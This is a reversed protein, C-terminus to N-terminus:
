VETGKRERTSQRAIGPQGLLQRRSPGAVRERGETIALLWARFRQLKALKRGDTPVCLYYGQRALYPGDFLTTLQGRDLEDEILFRPVLGVGFGLVASKVILSYQDFRPGVLPNIGTPRHLDFWEKWAHPVLVHQLLNVKALDTITRLACDKRLEPTCVAEIERGIVYDAHADPWVGEGFQIAADFGEARTFDHTHAYQVFDVSIDAHRARFDALRPILFQSAFTPPVSLSIIGGQGRLVILEATARELLGLGLRVKSLYALGAETLELRRGLRRFLPMGVFEELSAIQRSVASQTVHLESAARSFSSHRAVTDFAQLEILKPCVRRM